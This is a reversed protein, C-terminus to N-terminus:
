RGPCDCMPKPTGRQIRRKEQALESQVNAKPSTDDFEGYKGFKGYEDFEGSQQYGERSSMRRFKPRLSIDDFEGYKSFEGCKDFEGSQQGGQRASM